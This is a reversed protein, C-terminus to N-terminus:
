SVEAEFVVELFVNLNIGQKKRKPNLIITFKKPEM